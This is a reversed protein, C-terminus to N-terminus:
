GKAGASPKPTSTGALNSSPVPTVRQGQQVRQLGDVILKDGASLGSGILWQGDLSRETTVRRQQAKNDSDVVWAMANGQNDRTVGRQPVMLADSQVGQILETRVFMGPLLMGAPNPFVARLTVAGTSQDVSVESFELSGAHEYRRGDETSLFVQAQGEGVSQLRGQALDEKLRLLNTAPQTIDVFIPDLQQITALPGPQNATVLAGQTVSSRGIRGAIPASIKTYALDIKATEVAARAQLFQARADDLQQQSVARSQVLRAYREYLPKAADLSAQARALAAKYPAPDIQYLADGAKVESGEKFRRELLIGGVQPRVEAVLHATTRGPFETVLRVPQPQLTIVGVEPGAAAAPTPPVDSKSCGVLNITLVVTSLAAATSFKRKQLM